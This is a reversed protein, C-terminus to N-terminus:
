RSRIFYSFSFISREPSSIRTDLAKASNRSEEIAATFRNLYVRGTNGIGAGREHLRRKEQGSSLSNVPLPPEAPISTKAALVRSVLSDSYQECWRVIQSGPGSTVKLGPPSEYSM